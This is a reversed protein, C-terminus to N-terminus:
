AVCDELIIVTLGRRELEKLNKGNTVFMVSWLTNLLDRSHFKRDVKMRLLIPKM